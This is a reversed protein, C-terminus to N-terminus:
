GELECSGLVVDDKYFCLLNGHSGVLVGLEEMWHVAHVIKKPKYYETELELTESDFVKIAGDESGSVIRNGIFECSTVPKTHTSFLKVTM